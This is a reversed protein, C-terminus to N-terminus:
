ADVGGNLWRVRTAAAYKTDHDSESHWRGNPEFFGVTWLGRESEIFVWM